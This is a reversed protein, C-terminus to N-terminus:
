LKSKTSVEVFGEKVNQNQQSVSKLLSFLISLLSRLSSSLLRFSMKCLIGPPNMGVLARYTSSKNPPDRLQSPHIFHLRVHSGLPAGFLCCILLLIKSATKQLAAIPEGKIAFFHKVASASARDTLTPHVLLPLM